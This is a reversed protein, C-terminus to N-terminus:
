WDPGLVQGDNPLCVLNWTSASLSPVVSRVSGDGMAVMLASSHPTAPTGWVCAATNYPTPQNQFPAGTTMYVQNLYSSRLWPQYAPTKTPAQGIGSGHGWASGQTSSGCLAYTHIFIVTNSSGDRIKEISTSRDFWNVRQATFQAGNTGDQTATALEGQTPSFVQANAAYSTGGLTGGVVTGDTVSPDAPCVYTTVVKTNGPGGITSPDVVPPTAANGLSKFLNDQEIYPLLFVHTSGWVTNNKTSNSWAQGQTMGGYLPPLRGFTSQYNQVGLGIQKLNNTCTTRAAAERVKQVAPVLLAILIAIIAIVVLLEILTFGPRKTHGKRLTAV